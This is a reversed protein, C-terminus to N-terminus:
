ANHVEERLQAMVLSGVGGFKDLIEEVLELPLEKAELWSKLELAQAKVSEALTCAEKEQNARRTEIVKIECLGSIGGDNVEDVIEFFDDGLYEVEVLTGDDSIISCGGSNFCRKFERAAVKTNRVANLVYIM